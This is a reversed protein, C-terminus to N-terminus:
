KVNVTDNAGIVICVDFTQMQPNIDDMTEVINYPVKAEALLVNMHGPLRGAVPHIGFRVKKGAKQLHDVLTAVHGQARAQALGYGPLIVISSADKLLKYFEDTKIPHGDNVDVAKKEGGESSSSQGFGGLMVSLISRNMAQCMVYSLITGSSFVIAGTIILLQNKSMFGAFCCSIGSLANLVAIVVPMDAGGIPVVFIFGYIMSFFLLLGFCTWQGVAKALESVKGILNFDYPGETVMPYDALGTLICLAVIFLFVLINIFLPIAITTNANIKIAALVSGVFTILGVVISILLFLMQLRSESKTPAYIYASINNTIFTSNQYM